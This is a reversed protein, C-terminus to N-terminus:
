YGANQNLTNQSADIESQPIPFYKHNETWSGMRGKDATSTFNADDEPVLVTAADGWRVLDTASEKM